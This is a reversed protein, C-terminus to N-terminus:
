IGISSAALGWRHPSPIDTMETWMDLNYEDCDQQYLQHECYIYGKNDITSAALLYRGPLPADTKSAWTDLNYEDCDQLSVLITHGCYIYGKNDITSAALYYRGPLPADTKSAWTDLNYEDCDQLYNTISLGCYIYGKNDITSAALSERPPLPADTKSTWVDPNYEDCDQYSSFNPDNGCYVYGKNDITSAALSERKPVPADTKSTWVDPNYEDCDRIFTYGGGVMAGHGYYLYGKKNITSAAFLSRGPWPADTKSVWVDRTYEDCDQSFIHAGVFGCYIYGRETIVVFQERAIYTVFLLPREEASSFRVSSFDRQDVSDTDEIILIASNGSEWGDREIITQFIDTLTPTDYVFGDMWSELSSWSVWDTLSFAQLEAFSVPADPNDENVFACRLNVPNDSKDSYATFRAFVNSVESYYPITINRFRIFARNAM